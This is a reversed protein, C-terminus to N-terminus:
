SSTQQTEERICTTHSLQLLYGYRCTHLIIKNNNTTNVNYM